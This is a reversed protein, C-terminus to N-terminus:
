DTRFELKVLGLQLTDGNSIEVEEGPKLRVDNVFTGNASGVEDRIVFRDGRLNIVAHRRSTSRHHDLPKLDVDPHIGTGHDFRGLTTSGSDSLEVEFGSEPSVLRPGGSGAGRTTPPTAPRSRRDEVPAELAGDILAPGAQRLRHSLKRLMRVAIEPDHRVLQDFTGRDIRVLICDTVARATATRPLDELIAMEGFFDGEELLALRVNDGDSEKLIEVEGTQIIYMEAGEQGESFVIDGASCPCSFDTGVPLPASSRDDM